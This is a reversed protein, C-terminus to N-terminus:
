WHGESLGTSVLEAEKADAIGAGDVTGGAILAGSARVGDSRDFIVVDLLLPIVRFLSSTPCFAEFAVTNSTSFPISVPLASLSVGSRNRTSNSSGFSGPFGFFQVGFRRHHIVIDIPSITKVTVKALEIKLTLRPTMTSFNSTVMTVAVNPTASKTNTHQVVKTCTCFRVM